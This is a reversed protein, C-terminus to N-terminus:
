PQKVLGEQLHIGLVFTQCWGLLILALRAFTTTTFGYETPEKM